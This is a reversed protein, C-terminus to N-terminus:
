LDGLLEKILRLSLERLNNTVSVKYIHPNLLRKYTDDFSDLEAKCHEQIQPLTLNPSIQKGAEIRKSILPTPPNEVTHYFHRYDIATHWFSYRKGVTIVDPEEGEEDRAIIDALANGDRDRLRWVQKTGPLTTKEPNDSVKIDPHMKGNVSHSALKYVGTFSAEDGGTVM